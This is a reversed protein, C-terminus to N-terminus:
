WLDVTLNGKQRTLEAETAVGDVTIRYKGYFAPVTFTGDAGAKGSESTWWEKYVLDHYAGAAPTPSWDRRYLSSVPIWNNGEWFGWMLIGEVAPHAFCIRFFDVLERAKQVEEEPTMTMIKDTYYRSRQGPMNFETVLIPLKFVSLSDLATQLQRRDFTDSHSHGQVGIGEIPIGQKLLSRIHAMYDALRNGTLIEYDNVFLQADPDGEHAWQAMLKTIEPGLREEYYNGHIMENNLDYGAFRGKYKTTVTIARDKMRRMLEENDLEKIWPQVFKPIGWFLNHGRLPINNEDTWKLIGDVIAYNVQDKKQEMSYWKVANETVAANFNQIFKEKYQKLDEEKMRGEALGNSIAGGFWFEHRLQEISIKAGPRASVIIKGKRNTDISKNLSEQGAQVPEDNGPVSAHSLFPIFMLVALILPVRAKIRKEM